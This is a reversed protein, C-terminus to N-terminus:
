LGSWWQALQRATERDSEPDPPLGIEATRIQGLYSAVRHVDHGGRLLGYVNLAYAGYGQQALLSESPCCEYLMRGIEHVHDSPRTVRPKPDDPM